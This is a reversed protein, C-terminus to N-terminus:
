HTRMYRVAVWIIWLGGTAILMFIDFAAHGLSYNKSM